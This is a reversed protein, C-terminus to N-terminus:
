CNCDCWGMRHSKCCSDGEDACIACFGCQCVSVQEVCDECFGHGGDCSVVWECDECKCVTCSKEIIYERSSCGPKRTRTREASHCRESKESTGCLNCARADEGDPNCCSECYGLGECDFTWACDNCKIAEGCCDCQVTRNAIQCYVCKLTCQQALALSAEEHSKLATLERQLSAEFTFASRKSDSEFACRKTQHVKMLAHVGASMEIKQASTVENHQDSHDDANLRSSVQGAAIMAGEPCWGGTSKRATQKARPVSNSLKVLRDKAAILDAAPCCGGTSKRATQKVIVKIPEKKVNLVAADPEDDDSSLLDVVEVPQSIKRLKNQTHVTIESTVQKSCPSHLQSAIQAQLTAKEETAAQLQAQITAKEQADAQLQAAKEEAAYQLQAQLAAKEETAAQLRAQITAKEEADAQLQVKEETAAQLRAQITAREEADAQLQVKEETAAQLRAQLTAKEETAAQLRAQLTAKQEAAGKLLDIEDDVRQPRAVATNRQYRYMHDFRVENASCLLAIM